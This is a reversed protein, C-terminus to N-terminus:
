IVQIEKDKSKDVESKEENINRIKRYFKNIFIIVCILGLCYGAIVDSPYHVRLYIRSFGILLPLVTFIICLINKLKKNKINTYILYVIFGYFAVSNTTHGSPFSFGWEDVLREEIPPRPRQIINKLLMYVFSSIIINFTIAIGFSRKKFITSVFLSILVSAVLVIRGGMSTIIKMLNTLNESRISEVLKYVNNDFSEIKNSSVLIWFMIFVVILVCVILKIINEKRM